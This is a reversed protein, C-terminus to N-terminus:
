LGLQATLRPLIDAAARARHSIRNKQETGLEAMTLGTGQVEFIPDYGFGGEGREAPVIVGECIGEGMEQAGQPGALVIVCRFRARWPRQYGSLEELLQRRRAADDAGPGALRASYVGPRGALAGVELGSDDALAWGQYARAFAHAKLRANDLYSEGSEHVALDLMAQAPTVLEVSLGSFLAQLERQKGPNNTALLLTPM